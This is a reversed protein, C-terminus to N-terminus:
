REVNKTSNLIRTEIQLPVSFLEEWPLQISNVVSEAAGVSVYELIWTEELGAMEDSFSLNLKASGNEVKSDIEIDVAILNSLAQEVAIAPTKNYDPLLWQLNDELMILTSSTTVLGSTSLKTTCKESKAIASSFMALLRVHDSTRHNKSTLLMNKISLNCHDPVIFEVECSAPLSLETLYFLFSSTRQFDQLICLLTFNQIEEVSKNPMELQVLLGQKFPLPAFTRLRDMTWSSEKKLWRQPDEGEPGFIKLIYIKSTSLVLCGPFTKSSAPTFIEARLLLVLEEKEQEFINLIIHLKIRHDVSNFDTYSYHVDSGMFETSEESKTPTTKTSGIKMTQLLEGLMSTLNTVPMFVTEKEIEQSKIADNDVNDNSHSMESIDCLKVNKNEYATCVSDTMSGSSSSETLGAMIPIIENTIVSSEGANRQGESRKRKPTLNSKSGEDLVEISSQSPNSLVEIDSESKKATTGGSPTSERSDELSAASGISSQSESHKLNGELIDKQAEAESKAQNKSNDANPTNFDDTQIVLASQCAPCKPPGLGPLMSVTTIETDHSFHTSCKMCKYVKLEISRTIIRENLTKVIKKADDIEVLYTRNQRDKRTTDFIINVTTPTGRGIVCSLVTETSWRFKLKGTIYDREKVEENTVILFVEELDNENKKKQVLYLDGLEEEPNYIPEENQEKSSTEIIAIGDNQSENENNVTEDFEETKDEIKITEDQNSKPPSDLIKISPIPSSSPVVDIVSDIGMINQIVSGARHSLWNNEGFQKRLALIQRKTELHEMSSEMFSSSLSAPKGSSKEKDHEEEAIIAEKVTQKRKSKMISTVSTSLSDMGDFSQRKESSDDCFSAELSAFSNDSAFDSVSSFYERPVAGISRISYNRNESVLIKESRTLPLRDLVFKTGSLCPHLHKLSLLRHNPHYSIPNGELSVWLLGSMTELPWLNFHETLCNYSLDLEVLNELGQLGKINDIYNSKLILKQLTHFTAKHFPPVAELKNFGLNVYKLSPLCDIESAKSILNHSLDLMQLWPTLELSKDLGTLTNYPLSLRNLSNWVFGVGADGGCAALLHGISSVGRGGACIVCELQGRISQIGKTLEICVKQLELYKLHRFKSIDIDVKAEALNCTIKLGITKQVFDHLFKIDRFVDNKSSNCVQFSSEIDEAENVIQHFEHNLNHLLTTSLSLKSTGNLIKDGNQRLLKALEIIEQIGSMTMPNSSLETM